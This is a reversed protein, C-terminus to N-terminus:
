IRGSMTSGGQSRALEQQIMNGIERALERKDTRDTIGGANVTINYTDGGSSEEARRGGGGSRNTGSAVVRQSTTTTTTGGGDGTFFAVISDAISGIFDKGFDVISSFLNKISQLPTLLATMLGKM